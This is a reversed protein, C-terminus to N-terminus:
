RGPKRLFLAVSTYLVGGDDLVLHPTLHRDRPMRSPHVLEHAPLEFVPAQVLELGSPAVVHEVLEAPRFYEPHPRDNIVLETTIATVGGPRLVRGIERMAAAAGPHGSFHEISSVSFAVDVSGDALELRRGDMRRFTLRDRRYPFPAYRGPDDLVAPDGSRGHDRAWVGAYLDTAVVRGARNALWYVVPEHGAGVGLCVAEEGLAGLKDLGYIIQTWEYGKRYLHDLGPPVARLELLYGLWEPDLWKRPDVLENLRAGEYPPRAVYPLFPEAPCVERFDAFAYGAPYKVFRQRFEESLTVFARVVDERGMAGSRLEALYHAKGAEDPARGLLVRYFAELFEDDRALDFSGAQARALQRHRQRAERWHAAERLAKVFLRM